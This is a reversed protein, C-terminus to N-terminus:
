IYYEHIDLAQFKYIKFRGKPYADVFSGKVTLKQTSLIIEMSVETFHLEPLEEMSTLEVYQKGDESATFLYFNLVPLAKGNVVIREFKGRNTNKKKKKKNFIGM